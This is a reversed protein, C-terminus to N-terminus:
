YLTEINPIFLLVTLTLYKSIFDSLGFSQNVCPSSHYISLNYLRIHESQRWHNIVALRSNAKPCLLWCVDSKKEHSSCLFVDILFGLLIQTDRLYTIYRWWGATTSCSWVPNRNKQLLGWPSAIFWLINQLVYQKQGQLLNLGVGVLPFRLCSGCVYCPM